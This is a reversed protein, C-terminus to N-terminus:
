AQPRSLPIEGQNVPKEQEAEREWIGQLSALGDDSEPCSPPPEGTIMKTRTEIGALAERVESELSFGLRRVTEESISGERIKTLGILVHEGTNEDVFGFQRTMPSDAVGLPFGSDRATLIRGLFTELDSCPIRGANRPYEVGDLRGSEADEFKRPVEITDAFGGPNHILARDFETMPARVDEVIDAPDGTSNFVVTGDLMGVLSSQVRPVSEPETKCPTEEQRLGEQSFLYNGSLSFSRDNLVEKEVTDPSMMYVQRSRTMEGTDTEVIVSEITVKMSVYERM